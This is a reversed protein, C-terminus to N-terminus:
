GGDADRRRPPRRARSAHSSPFDRALKEYDARAEARRGLQELARARMLLAYDGLATRDRIVSSDLLAVGGAFDGQKIKIRARLIRALGAAKTNPFESEVRAVADEAPLVGGRTMARLQDLAKVEGPVQRQQPRAGCSASMLPWVSAGIVVVLGTIILTLRHKRFDIAM